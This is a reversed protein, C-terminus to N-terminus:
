ILHSFYNLWKISISHYVIDCKDFGFVCIQNLCSTFWGKKLGHPLHLFCQHLTTSQSETASSFLFSILKTMAEVAPSKSMNAMVVVPVNAVSDSLWAMDTQWKFQIDLVQEVPTLSSIALYLRLPTMTDSLLRWAKDSGSM